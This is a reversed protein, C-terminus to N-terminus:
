SWAASGIWGCGRHMSGKPPPNFCRPSLVSCGQRRWCRPRIIFSSRGTSSSSHTATARRRRMSFFEIAKEKEGDLLFLKGLMYQAYQSGHDAARSFWELAKERVNEELAEKGLRYEEAKNGRKAASAMWRLGEARDQVTLDNSLLLDCLAYQAASFNQAASKEFWGKAIEADPIVTGGDRYVKGMCYQAYASGMEAYVELEAMANQRYELSFLRNQTDLWLKNLLKAEPLSRESEEELGTEDDEISVQNM